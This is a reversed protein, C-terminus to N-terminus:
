ADFEAAEKYGKKIKNRFIFYNVFGIVLVIVSAAFVVYGLWRIQELAKVKTLAIGSVVLYLATRIFSLLTRQNALRTRDIALYDRLIM